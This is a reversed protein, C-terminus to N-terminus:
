LDSKEETVVCLVFIKSVRQLPGTSSLQSVNGFSERPAASPRNSQISLLKKM